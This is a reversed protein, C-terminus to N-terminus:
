QRCPTKVCIVISADSSGSNRAIRRARIPASTPTSDTVASPSLSIVLREVRGAILEDLTQLRELRVAHV